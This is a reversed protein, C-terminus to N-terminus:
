ATGEMTTWTRSCACQHPEPHDPTLYCAHVNTRECVTAGCLQRSVIWPYPPPGECEAAIHAHHPHFRRMGTPWEVPLLDRM